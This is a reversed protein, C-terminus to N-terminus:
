THNEITSAKLVISDYKGKVEECQLEVEELIKWHVKTKEEKKELQFTISDM